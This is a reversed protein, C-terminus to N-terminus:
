TLVSDRPSNTVVKRARMSSHQRAEGHSGRCPTELSIEGNPKSYGKDCGGNITPQM